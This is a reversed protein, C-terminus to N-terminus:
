EVELLTKASARCRSKFWHIVDGKMYRIKSGVQMYPPGIGEKRLRHLHAFSSAVGSKILDKDTVFEPLDTELKQIFGLLASAIESTQVEM